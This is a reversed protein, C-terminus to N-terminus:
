VIWGLLVFAGFAAFCIASVAMVVKDEFDMPRDPGSIGGIHAYPGFAENLTRPYKRTNM